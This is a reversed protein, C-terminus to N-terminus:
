PTITSTNPAMATALDLRAQRIRSARRSGARRLPRVGIAWRALRGTLVRPRAPTVPELGPAPDGSADPHPVPSPRLV